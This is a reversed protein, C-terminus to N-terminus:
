NGKPLYDWPNLLSGHLRVEFHLHPGTSRGTSGIRGIMQNQNVQEGEKVTFSSFHAYLTQYGNGHDIIVRKGYDGGWGVASVHGGYASVVATGLPAAIDLAMHTASPQTTIPGSVPWIMINQNTNQPQAQPQPQAQGKLSLYTSSVIKVYKKTEAFEPVGGYKDVNGAGANYAALALILDNGYRDLQKRMYCTGARINQTPDFPNTVGMERSTGPMLQMLGGAGASSVAQPNGGSEQQIIAAILLPDVGCASGAQLIHAQWRLVDSPVKSWGVDQVAGAGAEIVTQQTQQVGPTQQNKIEINIVEPSNSTAENNGRVMLNITTVEHRADKPLLLLGAQQLLLFAVGTAVLIILPNRSRAVHFLGFAVAISISIYVGAIIGQM